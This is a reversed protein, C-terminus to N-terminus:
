QMHVVSGTGQINQEVKPNGTYRVNGSGEITVALRDVAQVRAEGAGQIHLQVDESRLDQAHYAAAGRLSAEQRHVQGQLIAEGSGVINTVLVNGQLTLSARSTGEMEVVLRDVKLTGVSEVRSRGSIKLSEIKKLTAFFKVPKSPSLQKNEAIKVTLTQDTIDLIFHEILNEDAEVRFSEKEGQEIYLRGFGTELAIHVFPVAEQTNAMYRGSGAIKEESACGGLVLAWVPCIMVWFFKM